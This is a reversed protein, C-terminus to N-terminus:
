DRSTSGSFVQTALVTVVVYLHVFGLVPSCVSGQSLYSLCFFGLLFCCCFVKWEVVLLVEFM